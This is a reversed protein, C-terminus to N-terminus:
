EQGRATKITAQVWAEIESGVWATRKPSLKIRSPFRGEKERRGIESASLTTAEVVQEITLLREVM